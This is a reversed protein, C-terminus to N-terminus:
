LTACLPAVFSPSVFRIKRILTVENAVAVSAYVLTQCENVDLAIM